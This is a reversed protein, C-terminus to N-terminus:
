REEKGEQQEKREQGAKGEKEEKGDKRGMGDRRKRCKRSKEQHNRGQKTNKIEINTEMGIWVQQDERGKRETKWNAKNRGKEQMGKKGKMGKDECTEWDEHKELRM